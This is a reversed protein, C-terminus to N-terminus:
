PKEIEYLFNVGTPNSGMVKHMGHVRELWQAIQDFSSIYIYIYIYIYVCIIAICFLINQRFKYIQSIEYIFVKLSYFSCVLFFSLIKPLINYRFVYKFELKKEM